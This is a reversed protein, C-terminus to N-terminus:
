GQALHRLIFVTATATGVVIASVVFARFSRGAIGFIGHGCGSGGACAAGLGVLFGAVVLLAPSAAVSIEIKGPMLLRYILPSFLLGAVFFLRWATDGRRARRLGGLVGSVCAVRGVFLWLILIALGILAGGGLAPLAFSKVM